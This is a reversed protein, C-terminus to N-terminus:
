SPFPWSEETEDDDVVDINEKDRGPVEALSSSRVWATQRFRVGGGRKRSCIGLTHPKPAAGDLGLRGGDTLGGRVFRSGPRGPGSFRESSAKQEKRDAPDSGAGHARCPGKRHSRVNMGTVECRAAHRAHRPRTQDAPAMEWRPDM